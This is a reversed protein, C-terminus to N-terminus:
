DEEPEPSRGPAAHHINLEGRMVTYATGHDRVTTRQTAGADANADAAVADAAADPEAEPEGTRHVEVQNGHGAVVTGSADGGISISYQDGTSPPM